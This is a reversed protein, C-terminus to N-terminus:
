FVDDEHVRQRALVLHAGLSIMGDEVDIGAADVEVLHLVAHVHAHGEQSADEAGVLSAGAHRQQGDGARHVRMDM